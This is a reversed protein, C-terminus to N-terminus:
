EEDEGSEPTDTDGSSARVVDDYAFAIVEVEPTGYEKTGSM